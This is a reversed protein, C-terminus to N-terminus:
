RDEGGSGRGPWELGRAYLRNRPLGTIEATLRAARKLPMERLCLALIREAEPDLTQAPADPAGAVLVVFEGRRHDAAEALWTNLSALTGGQIQEFTKTLERAVVAPRAGGLVQAMDELGAAIRHSSEYFILTCTEGALAQLRRRRAPARAPLFGEFLFRDSPLGSASLAAVFACPGPVPSVRVGAERAARVLRYGPDSVLPTGADSVLALAEGKQLRSLLGPVQREENHEHLSVLPTRIGAHTLLGATHRTDEAAIGDVDRLVEVARPSLDGLNGIPTAVVYLVGAEISM